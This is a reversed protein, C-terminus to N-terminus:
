KKHKKKLAKKYEDMKKKNNTMNKDHKRYRYLPLEINRILHNKEFRLRLDEEERFKFKEDYLGIEFLLDTRFMVGCAIPKEAGSIRGIHKEDEDVLFYDCSVADWTPNFNLFTMEIHLLNEDMYDDADLNVVFRGLASKIGENRAAALGVNKKLILPKIKGSYTKMVKRTEDTSGDDVVIIEYDKKDLSQNIASRIARSLYRAYNHCTIIVSVQM